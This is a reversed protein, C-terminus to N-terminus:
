KNNQCLFYIWSDNILNFSQNSLIIEGTKLYFPTINIFNFSTLQSVLYEPKCYCYETSFNIDGDKIMAYNMNLLNNKSQNLKKVKQCRIFEAYYKLPNKPFQFSFLKPINYINHSSFSFYGNPKLVRKIEKIIFIRDEFSVCDIGNFSFLVFDFSNDSFISMNRADCTSFSFNSLYNFKEKCIEIMKESYDIGIYKSAIKGFHSTTRGTGVGIDLMSDINNKKMQELISKEPPTLNNKKSYSKVVKKSEYILKNEM